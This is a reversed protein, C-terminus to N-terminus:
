KRESKTADQLVGLGCVKDYLEQLLKEKGGYKRVADKLSECTILSYSSVYCMSCVEQLECGNCDNVQNMRKLMM